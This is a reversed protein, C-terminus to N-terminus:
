AVLAELKLSNGIVSASERTKSSITAIWASAKEIPVSMSEATGAVRQLAEGIEEAGSATKDGLLAFIDIIKNVSEGTANATATIIRNSDQLPINSIKAYKIIAEMREEVEGQSLGQRYLEVSTDTIEKTTAGMKIGIENFSKALKNIEFISQGTVIRIQNLSNSIEYIFAVGEKFKRLSGYIAGMSLGWEVTRRLAISIEKGFSMNNRTAEQIKSNNITLKKNTTDITGSLQREKGALDVVTQTFTKIGTSDISESYGIVKGEGFLSQKSLNLPKKAYREQIKIFEETQVKAEKMNDVLNINSTKFIKKMTNNAKDLYTEWEMTERVIQGMENRYEILANKINGKADTNINLKALKDVGARIEAMRKSIEDKGMGQINPNFKISDKTFTKWKRQVNEIQGELKKLDSPSFNINLNVGEKGVKNIDNKMEELYKKYLLSVALEIRNGGSSGHL